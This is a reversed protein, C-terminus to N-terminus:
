SASGCIFVDRTQRDVRRLHQSDTREADATIPHTFIIHTYTHTHTHTHTHIHTHVYTLSNWNTRMIEHHVCEVEEEKRRGVYRM